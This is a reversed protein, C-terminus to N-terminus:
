LHFISKLDIWFNWDEGNLVYNMHYSSLAIMLFSFLIMWDSISSVKVQKARSGVASKSVNM